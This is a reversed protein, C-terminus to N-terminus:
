GVQQRHAVVLAHEEILYDPCMRMFSRSALVVLVLDDVIGRPFRHDPIIDAGSVGYVVAFALLSKGLIPARPDRLLRAYVATAAIASRLFVKFGDRRWTEFLARDVVPAVLVLVTFALAGGLWMQWRAAATSLVRGMRRFSQRLSRLLGTTGASLREEVPGSQIAVLSFGSVSHAAYVSKELHVVEAVSARAESSLMMGLFFVLITMYRRM